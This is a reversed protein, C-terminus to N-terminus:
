QTNSAKTADMTDKIFKGYSKNISSIKLNCKDLSEILATVYLMLDENTTPKGKKVPM